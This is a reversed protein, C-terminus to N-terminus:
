TLTRRLQIRYSYRAPHFYTVALAIPQARPNVYVRDIRLVPTHPECDILHCVESPVDDVAISQQVTAIPGGNSLDVFQVITVGSRVGKTSLDRRNASSRKADRPVHVMSAGFPIGDDLHRTVATLVDDSELQLREATKGDTRLHLPVVVELVTTFPVVILEDLSGVSRVHTGGSQAPRPFSGRGPVRYVLRENVLEGFARRVTHRSVRYEAALQAETPLPQEAPLRGSMILDRLDAALARYAITVHPSVSDRTVAPPRDDIADNRDQGRPKPLLHASAVIQVVRQACQALNAGRSVDRHAIAAQGRRSPAEAASQSHRLGDGPIVADDHHVSM